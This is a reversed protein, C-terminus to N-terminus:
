LIASYSEPPLREQLIDLTDNLQREVEAEVELSPSSQAGWSPDIGLIKLKIENAMEYSLGRPAEKGTDPLIGAFVQQLTNKVRDLEGVAISLIGVPLWGAGVLVSLAQIESMQTGLVRDIAWKPVGVPVRKITECEYAGSKETHGKETTVIVREMEGFLYQSFAKNAQRYKTEPLSNRYEKKAQSVADSFDPKHKLWQYFTDKGIRGEFGASDVGHVAIATVIQDVLEPTYKSHRGKKGAAMISEMHQVSKNKCLCREIVSQSLM